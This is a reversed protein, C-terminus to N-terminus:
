RVRAAELILTPYSFPPQLGDKDLAELRRAGAAMAGVIRAVTVAAEASLEYDYLERAFARVSESTIRAM